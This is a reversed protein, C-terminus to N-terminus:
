INQLYVQVGFIFNTPWPNWFNKCCLCSLCVCRSVSTVLCIVIAVNELPLLICVKTRETRNNEWSCSTPRPRITHSWSRRTANKTKRRKMWIASSCTVCVCQKCTHWILSLIRITFQLFVITLQFHFMYVWDVFLKM